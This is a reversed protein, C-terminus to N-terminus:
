VCVCVCVCVTFLMRGRGGVLWGDNSDATSVRVAFVGCFASGAWLFIATRRRAGGRVGGGEMEGRNVEGRDSM